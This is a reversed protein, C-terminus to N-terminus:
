LGIKRAELVIQRAAFESKERLDPSELGMNLTASEYLYNTIDRVNTGDALMAIVDNCYSDYEDAANEFETVGIPDWKTLLIESIIPVLQQKKQDLLADSM